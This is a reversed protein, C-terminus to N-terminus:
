ALVEDGERLEGMTTWGHPTPILTTLALAKRLQPITRRLILARYRPYTLCRIIPNWRGSLSKGTDRTGLALLNPATSKHYAVQNCLPDSQPEYLVVRKGEVLVEVKNSFVPKAM